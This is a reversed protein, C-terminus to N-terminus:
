SNRWTIKENVFDDVLKRYEKGPKHGMHWQDWRNKTKDWGLEQKTNPDYVKGDPQKAKEWVKDVLGEEYEPRSRMLKEREETWRIVEGDKLQQNFKEKPISQKIEGGKQSKSKYKVVVFEDTIEVVKARTKAGGYPVTVEEGVKVEKPTKIKLAEDVKANVDDLKFNCVPDSFRCWTGKSKNRRYVHDGVKVEVDYEKAYHPDSVQKLTKRSNVGERL